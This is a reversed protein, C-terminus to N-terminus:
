YLYSLYICSLLIVCSLPKCDAAGPSWLSSLDEILISVVFNLPNKYYIATEAHM